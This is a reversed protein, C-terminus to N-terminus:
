ACFSFLRKLRSKRASDDDRHPGSPLAGRLCAGTAQMRSLLELAAPDASTIESIDVVLAKGDLISKATNWAHELEQVQKGALEGRLVFRFTTASDHQYIIGTSM